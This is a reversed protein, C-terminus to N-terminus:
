ATNNNRLLIYHFLIIAVVGKVM